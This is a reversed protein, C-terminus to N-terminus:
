SSFSFSTGRARHVCARQIRFFNDQLFVWPSWSVEGWVSLFLLAVQTSLCTLSLPPLSFGSYSSTLHAPPLKILFDSESGNGALSVLTSRFSPSTKTLRTILLFLEAHQIFLVNPNSEEIASSLSDRLPFARAKIKLGVPLQLFFFSVARRNRERLSVRQCRCVYTFSLPM